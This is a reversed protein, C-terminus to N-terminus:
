EACELLKAVFEGLNVYKAGSGTEYVKLEMDECFAVAEEDPIDLGEAVLELRQLHLFTERDRGKLDIIFKPKVELNITNLLDVLYTEEVETYSFEEVGTLKLNTNDKCIKIHVLEEGQWYILIGDKGAYEEIGEMPFRELSNFGEILERCKDEYKKSVEITQIFVERSEDSDFSFNYENM